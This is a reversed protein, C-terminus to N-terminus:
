AANRHADVAIILNISKLFYCKTIVKFCNYNRPSGNSMGPEGVGYYELWSFKSNDKNFPCWETPHKQLLSPNKRLLLWKVFFYGM